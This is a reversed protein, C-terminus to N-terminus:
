AELSDPFVRRGCSLLPNLFLAVGLIMNKMKIFNNTLPSMLGRYLAATPPGHDRPANASAANVRSTNSCPINSNESHEPQGCNQVVEGAWAEWSAKIKLMHCNCGCPMLASINEHTKLKYTDWIGALTRGAEQSEFSIHEPRWGVKWFNQTNDQTQLLEWPRWMERATRPM